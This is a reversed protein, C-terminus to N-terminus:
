AKKNVDANSNEIDSLIKKTPQVQVFQAYKPDIGLHVIVQDDTVKEIRGVLKNPPYVGGKGTSVVRMGPEIGEYTQLYRIKLKAGGIGVAIAERNLEEIRIPVRSNGDGLLLGYSFSDAAQIIRGLIMDGYLIPDDKFVGENKGKDLLISEKYPKSPFGIVKATISFSSPNYHALERLSVIERKLEDRERQLDIQKYLIKKKEDYNMGFAQFSVPSFIDTFFSTVPATLTYLKEQVGKKVSQWVKPAFFDLLGFFLVVSGLVILSRKLYPVYSFLFSYRPLKLDKEIPVKKKNFLKSKAM